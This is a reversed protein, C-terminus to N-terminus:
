PKRPWPKPGAKAVSGGPLAGTGVDALFEGWRFNYNPDESMRKLQNIINGAGGGVAGGVVTGVPGAMSGIAQGATAAGAETAFERLTTGIGREPGSLNKAPAPAAAPATPKARTPAHQAFLKELEEDNPPRSGEVTLVNGTETDRYTYEPM